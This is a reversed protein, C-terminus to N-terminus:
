AFANVLRYTRVGGRVAQGPRRHLEGGPWTAEGEDAPADLPSTVADDPFAWRVLVPCVRGGTPGVWLPYLGTGAERTWGAPADEEAGLVGLVPAATLDGTAGEPLRVFEDDGTMGVLAAVLRDLSGFRAPRRRRLATLHRRERRDVTMVLRDPHFV